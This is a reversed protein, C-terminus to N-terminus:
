RKIVYKMVFFTIPTAIMTTLIPAIKENMMFRDVLIIIGFYQIVFNPVYTLPFLIFKKWSFREKYTYYTNLFYSEIISISYGLTFSVKYPMHFFHMFIRYFVYNTAFNICGVIAYKGFQILSENHNINFFSKDM